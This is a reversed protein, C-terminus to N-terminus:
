NQQLYEEVNETSWMMSDDDKVKIFQHEKLRNIVMDTFTEFKSTLIKESINFESYNYKKTIDSIYNRLKKIRKTNGIDSNSYTSMIKHFLVDVINNYISDAANVVVTSRDLINRNIDVKSLGEIYKIQYYPDPLENRYIWCKLVKSLFLEKIFYTIFIKTNIPHFSNVESMREIEAEVHRLWNSEVINILKKLELTDGYINTLNTELKWIWDYLLKIRLLDWIFYSYSTTLNYNFSDQIALYWYLQNNTSVVRTNNVWSNYEKTIPNISKEIVKGLNKILFRDNKILNGDLKFVKKINDSSESNPDLYEHDPDNQSEWRYYIWNSSCIAHFDHIM